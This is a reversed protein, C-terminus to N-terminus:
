LKRVARVPLGAARDFGFSTSFLNPSQLLLISGKYPVDFHLTRSWYVCTIGDDQLAGDSMAGAVPLFISKNNIKSTLRMGFRNGQTVWERTTLNTSFLEDFQEISPMQWASGWEPNATAADDEPLLETLKDEYSAYGYYSDSCYKTLNTGKGDRCYKYTNWNYTAKPVTEGWAFYYGPEEPSKAGVNCTAWLTGSPLGLDVYDWVLAKEFTVEKVDTITHMYTQNNGYKVVMVEREVKQAYTSVCMLLMAAVIMFLRKM